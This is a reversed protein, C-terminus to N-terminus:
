LRPLVARVEGAHRGNPALRLYEEYASRAAQPNSSQQVSGIILYADPLHPNMGVARKALRLTDGKHGALMNARALLLVANASKPAAQAAAECASLAEGPREHDVAKQCADLRETPEISAVTRAPAPRPKSRAAVRQQPKPRAAIPEPRKASAAV